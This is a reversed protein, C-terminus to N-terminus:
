RRRVGSRLSRLRPSEEGGASAGGLSLGGFGGMANMASNSPSLETGGISSRPSDLGLNLFSSSISERARESALRQARPTKSAGQTPNNSHTYRKQQSTTSLSTQPLSTTFPNTQAQPRTTFNHNPITLDSSSFSTTMANENQNTDIRPSTREKPRFQRFTDDETSISAFTDSMKSQYWCIGSEITLISILFTFETIDHKRREEHDALASEISLPTVSRWWAIGLASLLEIFYLYSELSKRYFSMNRLTEVFSIASVLCIMGLAANEIADNGLRGSEYPFRLPWALWVMATLLLLVVNAKHPITPLQTYQAQLGVKGTTENLHQGTKAAGNPWLQRRVEQPEDHMSFAANFLSELGTEDNRDQPPFFRPPAMNMESSKKQETDGQTTVESRHHFPNPDTLAKPITPRIPNRLNWAPPRPAPPLVGHFPSPSTRDTRIERNTFRPQLTNSSPAWDMADDDDDTDAYYTSAPTAETIASRSPSVGLQNIPFGSQLKSPTNYDQKAPTTTQLQQQAEPHRLIPKPSMQWNVLPTNDLKVLFFSITFVVLTMALVVLHAAAVMSADLGSKESDQLSGWAVARVVLIMIQAKYYEGLGIMRERRGNLKHKLQPNWWMSAVGLVVAWGAWPAFKMQCLHEVGVDMSPTPSSGLMTAALETFGKEVTRVCQKMTVDLEMRWPGDLEMGHDQRKKQGELWGFVSWAVQGLLSAWYATGALAVIGKKWDLRNAQLRRTKSDDM